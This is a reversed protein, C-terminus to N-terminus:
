RLRERGAPIGLLVAANIGTGVIYGEFDDARHQVTQGTQLFDNVDEGEEGFPPGLDIAGTAQMDMDAHVRHQSGFVVVETDDHAPHSPEDVQDADM